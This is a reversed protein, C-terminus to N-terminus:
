FTFVNRVKYTVWSVGVTDVFHGLPFLGLGFSDTLMIGYSCVGLEGLNDRGM